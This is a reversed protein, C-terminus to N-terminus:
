RFGDPDCQNCFYQVGDQDSQILCECLPIHWQEWPKGAYWFWACELREKESSVTEMLKNYGMDERVSHPLAAVQEALKRISM